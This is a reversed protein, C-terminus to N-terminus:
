HSNNDSTGHIMIEKAVLEGSELKTGYVMLFRGPTLDTKNVHKQETEGVYVTDPQLTVKTEGKEGSLVLSGENVSMITGEVPKGHNVGNHAFAIAPLFMGVLFTVITKSKMIIGKKFLLMLM